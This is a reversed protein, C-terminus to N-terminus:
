IMKLHEFVEKSTGMFSKWLKAREKYTQMRTIHGKPIPKKERTFYRAKLVHEPEIIFIPIVKYGAKELPDKTESISFPAECLLPRIAKPAIDLIAKLYAGPKKLYIYGDHHLYEFKEQLQECVWSKGSGPVGVVLYIPQM